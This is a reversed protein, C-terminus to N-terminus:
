IGFLVAAGLAVVLAAVYAFVGLLVIGNRFYLAIPMPIAFAAVDVWPNTLHNKSLIVVAALSLVLSLVVAIHTGYVSREAPSESRVKIAKSRPDGIILKRVMQSVTGTMGASTSM